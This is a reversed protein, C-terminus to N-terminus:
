KEKGAESSTLQEPAQFNNVLSKGIFIVCSFLGVIYPLSVSPWNVKSRRSIIRDGFKEKLLNLRIHPLHVMKIIEIDM